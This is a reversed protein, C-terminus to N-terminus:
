RHAVRALLALHDTGEIRITRSAVAAMTPGVLVHDIQALPPLAIGLSRSLHNAPWTPQWGDNDLEVVDRFGEDRLRLLPAHDVTANLDGAVLDPPDARVSALITAHDERWAAPGTPAYAHAALLSVDDGVRVRWCGFRTPLRVAGTLPLRSFVMTGRVGPEASGARHAFLEGLGAGQMRAVEGTTVEEVVLVDVHDDRAARVLAAGDGRGALMNATMVTLVPAGAAPAPKHGAVQPVFWWAHLALGAVALLAPLAYSTRGRRRLVPVVALLLATAYLPLAVPTLAVLRIGRDDLPQWLRLTTLALAPGLLLAILLWWLISRARRLAVGRVPETM